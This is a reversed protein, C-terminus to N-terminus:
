GTIIEETRSDSTKHDIAVTVTGDESEKISALETNWEISLALNHELHDRLIKM